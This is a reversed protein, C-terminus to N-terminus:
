MPRLAMGDSRRAAFFPDDGSARLFAWVTKLWSVDCLRQDCVITQLSSEWNDDVPAELINRRQSPLM